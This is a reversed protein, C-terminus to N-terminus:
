TVGNMCVAAINQFHPARIIPITLMRYTALKVTNVDISRGIQFVPCEAISDEGLIGCRLKGGALNLAGFHDVIGSRLLIHEPCM